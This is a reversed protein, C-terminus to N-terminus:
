PEIEATVQIQFTQHTGVIRRRANSGGKLQNCLGSCVGIAPVGKEPISVQMSNDMSTDRQSRVVRCLLTKPAQGLFRLLRRSVGQRLDIFAMQGRRGNIFKLNGSKSCAMPIRTPGMVKQM